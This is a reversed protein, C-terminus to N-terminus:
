MGYSALLQLCLMVCAAWSLHLGGYSICCIITHMVLGYSCKSLLCLLDAINCVPLQIACQSNTGRFCVFACAVYVVLLSLTLVCACM